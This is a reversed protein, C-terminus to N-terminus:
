NCPNPIITYDNGNQSITLKEWGTIDQNARYLSVKLNYHKPSNDIKTVFKLFTKELTTYDTNWGGVTSNLKSFDAKFDDEFKVRLKKDGNLIDNYTQRFYNIDEPEIVLAYVQGNAVLMHVPQPYSANNIGSFPTATFWFFYNYLVSIDDYSFMGQLNEMHFHAGGFTKPTKTYIVTNDKPSWITVKEAYMGGTAPDYKFNYGEEHTTNPLDVTNRLDLLADKISVTGPPLSVTPNELMKKLRECTTIPPTNDNESCQQSIRYFATGSQTCPDKPPQPGPTGGGGDGGGSTNPIQPTADGDPVSIVVDYCINVHCKEMCNDCKGESHHSCQWYVGCSQLWIMKGNQQATATSTTFNKIRIRGYENNYKRGVFLDKPINTFDENGFTKNDMYMFTYFMQERYNKDIKENYVINELLKNDYDKIGIVSNEDDLTAFLVSSMTENDDSLPIMLGTANEADVVQMKDWIPMGKQDPMTSLFDKERNYAELISIYDVGSKATVSNVHKFFNANNRQPETEGKAFDENHCSWLLTLFVTLISLWSIMKKTM